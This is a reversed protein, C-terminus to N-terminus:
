NGIRMPTATATTTTAAPATAAAAATASTTAAAAAASATATTTLQRPVFHLGASCNYSHIPARTHVYARTTPTEITGSRARTERRRTM